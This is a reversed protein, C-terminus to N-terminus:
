ISWAMRTLTWAARVFSTPFIMLITAGLCISRNEGMSGTNDDHDHNQDDDRRDSPREDRGCGDNHFNRKWPDDEEEDDDNGGTSSAAVQPGSGSNLCDDDPNAQRVIKMPPISSDATHNM